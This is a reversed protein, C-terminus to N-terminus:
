FILFVLKVSIFLDIEEKEWPVKFYFRGTLVLHISDVITQTLTIIVGCMKKESIKKM